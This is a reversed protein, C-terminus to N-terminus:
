RGSDIRKRTPRSVAGFSTAAWSRSIARPRSDAGRYNKRGSAFNLPRGTFCRKVSPRAPM